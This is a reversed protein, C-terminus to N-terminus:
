ISEISRLLTRLQVKVITDQATPGFLNDYVFQAADALEFEPLTGAVAVLREACDAERIRQDEDTMQLHEVM